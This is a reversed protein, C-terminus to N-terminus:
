VAGEQTTCKFVFWSNIVDSVKWVITVLHVNCVNHFDLLMQTLDQAVTRHYLQELQAISGWLVYEVKAQRAVQLM